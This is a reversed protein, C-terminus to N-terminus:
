QTKIIGIGRIRYRSDILKRYRCGRVKPTYIRRIVIVKSFSLSTMMYARSFIIAKARFWTYIKAASHTQHSAEIILRSCLNTIRISLRRLRSLIGGRFEASDKGSVLSIDSCSDISLLTCRLPRLCTVTIRSTDDVGLSRESSRRISWTSCRASCNM